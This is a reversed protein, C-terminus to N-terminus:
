KAEPPIMKPPVNLGIEKYYRYAGVHYPPGGELAEVWKKPTESAMFDGLSKRYSSVFAIDEFTNKALKYAIDESLDKTCIQGSPIGWTLVPAGMHYYKDPITERVATPVAKIIAAIEAESFPVLRIPHLLDIEVFTPHPPPSVAIYADIKGAVLAAGGEKHGMYVVDFDAPWSMGMAPLAKELYGITSMGKQGPCVRKGALDKFSKIASDAPVFIQMPTGGPYFLTRLEQRPAQGEYKGTGAYVEYALDMTATGFDILGSLVADQMASISYTIVTANVDVDRTVIAAFCNAWLNSVGGVTGGGVTIREKQVGPSCAALVSAVVILSTTLWILGKNRM